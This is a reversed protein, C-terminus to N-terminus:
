PTLIKAAIPLFGRAPIRDIGQEYKYVQQHTIGLSNAVASQNLGMKIRRERLKRAIYRDRANSSRKNKPLSPSKM